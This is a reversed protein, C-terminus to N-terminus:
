NANFNKIHYWLFLISSAILILTEFDKDENLVLKVLSLDSKEEIVDWFILAKIENSDIEDDKTITEFYKKSTIAVYNEYYIIGFYKNQELSLELNKNLSIILKVENNDYLYTKLEEASLKIYQSNPTLFFKNENNKLKFLINGKKQNYTSIYVSKYDHYFGNSLYYISINDLPNTLRLPSSKTYAISNFEQLHNNFIENISNMGDICLRFTNIVYSADYLYRCSNLTTMICEQFRTFDFSKDEYYSISDFTNHLKQIFDKDIM